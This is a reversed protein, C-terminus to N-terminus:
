LAEMKADFPLAGSGIVAELSFFHKWVFTLM